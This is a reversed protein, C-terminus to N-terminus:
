VLRALDQQCDPVFPRDCMGTYSWVIQRLWMRKREDELMDDTTKMWTTVLAVQWLTSERTTMRLGSRNDTVARSRIHGEM